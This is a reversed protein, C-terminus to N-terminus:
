SPHYPASTAGIRPDLHRASAPALLRWRSALKLARPEKRGCLFAMAMVLEGISDRDLEPAFRRVCAALAAAPRLLCQYTIPPLITPSSTRAAHLCPRKKTIPWYQDLGALRLRLPRAPTAIIPRGALRVVRYDRQEGRRNCDNRPEEVRNWKTVLGRRRGTIMKRASRERGSPCELTVINSTASEIPSDGQVATDRM